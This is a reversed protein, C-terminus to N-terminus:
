PPTEISTVIILCSCDVADDADLFGAAIASAALCIGSRALGQAKAALTRVSIGLTKAAHTRNGRHQELAREVAARELEELSTGAPIDIGTGNKGDDSHGHDLQSELQM